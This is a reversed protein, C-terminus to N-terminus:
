LRCKPYTTKNKKLNVDMPITRIVYGARTYVRPFKKLHDALKPARQNPTYEATM